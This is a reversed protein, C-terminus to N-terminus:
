RTGSTTDVHFGVVSGDTLGTTPTTFTVSVPAGAAPPNPALAAGASALLAVTAMSVTVAVLFATLGRRHRHTSRFRSVPAGEAHSLLSRPSTHPGPGPRRRGSGPVRPAVPGPSLHRRHRRGFLDAAAPRPLGREPHHVQVHWRLAPEQDRRVVNNFGVINRADTYSPSAPNIVNFVLRAGPMVDTNTSRRQTCTPYNSCVQPNKESVAAPGIKVSCATDTVLSGPSIVVQTASNVSSVTTGAAVCTGELTSGVDASTFDGSASDLTTDVVLPSLSGATQADTLTRMQSATGNVTANNLLFGSGTWRVSYIPTLAGVVTGPLILGGPRIGARLDKTPNTRNTAQVVFKGASYPLIAQQYYQANNPSDLLLDNGKNEEVAIAAPCYNATGPTGVAPSARTPLSVSCTPGSSTM